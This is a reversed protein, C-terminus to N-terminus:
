LLACEWTFARYVQRHWAEEPDDAAPPDDALVFTFHNGSATGTPGFSGNLRGLFTGEPTRRLEYHLTM